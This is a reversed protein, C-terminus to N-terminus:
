YGALNGKLPMSLGFLLGEPRFEVQTEAQLEYPVVRQLLELGFGESAPPSLPAPLGTEAWVLKLREGAIEWDVRVRGEVAGLAGYKVANTTLEHLALSVTEASKPILMVNPGSISLHEGERTAHVLLEDEVLSTLDVGGDASRTVMAQVRAFADLRGDLHAGMEEVSKSNQATRRAIARVVALTNRVRHQLEALLLRQREDAAHRETVDQGIKLYGSLSGDEATLPTLTGDIYVRSGDKRCHWRIDPAVGRRRATEVETEPVHALRDPETFIFSFPQGIAEDGRWGFVAEAGPFWEVIRGAPDIRLIAYDRAREVIRGFREESERLAEGTAKRATIDEFLVALRHQEPKGIRFAHV